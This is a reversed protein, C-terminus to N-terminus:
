RAQLLREARGGVALVTGDGVHDFYQDPVIVPAVAYRDWLLLCQKKLVLALRLRALSLFCTRFILLNENKEEPDPYHWGSAAEM